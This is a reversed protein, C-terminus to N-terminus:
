SRNGTEEKPPAELFPSFNSLLLINNKLFALFDRLTNCKLKKSKSPWKPIFFTRNVGIKVINKLIRTFNDKFRNYMSSGKKRIQMSFFKNELAVECTFNSFFLFRDKLFIIQLLTAYM